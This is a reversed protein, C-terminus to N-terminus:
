SQAEPRHELQPAASTTISNAALLQQRNDDIAKAWDDTLADIADEWGDPVLRKLHDVAVDAMLRAVACVVSKPLLLRRRELSIQHAKSLAASQSLLSIAEGTRGGQIANELLLRCISLERSLDGQGADAQFQELRKQQSAEAMKYNTIHDM